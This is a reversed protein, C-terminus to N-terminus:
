RLVMPHSPDKFRITSILRVTPGYSTKCAIKREQREIRHGGGEGRHKKEGAIQKGACAYGRAM